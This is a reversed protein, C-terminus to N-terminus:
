IAKCRGVRSIKKPCREQTRTKTQDVTRQKRGQKWSPVGTELKADPTRVYSVYGKTNKGWVTWRLEYRDACM